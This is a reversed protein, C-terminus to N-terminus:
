SIFLYQTRTQESVAKYYTPGKNTKYFHIVMSVQHNTNENKLTVRFGNIGPVTCFPVCNIIKMYLYEQDDTFAKTLCTDIPHSFTQLTNLLNPPAIAM